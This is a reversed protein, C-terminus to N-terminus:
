DPPAPKPEAGAQTLDIIYARQSETEEGLFYIIFAEGFLTALM